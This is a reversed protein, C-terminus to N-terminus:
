EGLAKAVFPPAVLAGTHLHASYYLTEFSKSSADGERFDFESLDAGACFARGVGTLVLARISKDAEVKDLAAWLDCHMQRTFSNLSAPRNLTLIAIPGEHAFLVTPEATTSPAATTM